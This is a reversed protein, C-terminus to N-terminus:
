VIPGTFYAYRSEDTRYYTNQSESVGPLIETTNYDANRKAYGGGYKMESYVVNADM